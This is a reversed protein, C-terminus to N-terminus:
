LISSVPAKIGLAYSLNLHLYGPIPGLGVMPRDEGLLPMPGGVVDVGQDLDTVVHVVMLMMLVIIVRTARDVM